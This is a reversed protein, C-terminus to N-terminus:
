ALDPRLRYFYDQQWDELESWRDKGYLDAYDDKIKQVEKEEDSLEPPEGGFLAHQFKEIANREVQYASPRTKYEEDVAERLKRLALRDIHKKDTAAEISEIFIDYFPLALDSARPIATTARGFADQDGMLAQAIDYIAASIEEAAGISLGGPTWSLINFPNYPNYKRGTVEKYAGGILLGAIIIGAMTKFAYRKERLTAGSSPKLKKGQLILRQAYSRPFVFLNMVVRALGGMEAPARQSREYMFHTNNTVERAVYRAFAEEGTVAELGEIGYDFKDLVLLQLAEKQQLPQLDELGSDAVLQDIDKTKRYTELARDVKNVRLWMSWRRNTEDTWPYRSLKNALRTIRGLGPLPKFQRMLYDHMMGLKQSVFIDSYLLRQTNLPKNRPDVMLHRDPHFAINQCLNRLWKHPDFFVAAMVQGYLRSAFRGVPGGIESYGKMENIAISLNNAVQYPSKLLYSAEDFTRAFQRIPSQLGRLSLIQKVYTNYRQVINRDQAPYEIGVRSRIHGKALTAPKMRFLYLRPNIISLPEYGSKIIGWDKDALFKSVADEGGSEYLDIAKRLDEIPADHIELDKIKRADGGYIEYANTFRIFRVLGRFEFLQREIEKALKVEEATIDPPSKPGMKHKAAIYDSVRGLAADDQSIKKFEATAQEVKNMYGLQEWRVKLHKENLWQWTEYFPRGTGEQLKQTYYRMDLLPSAGILPGGLRAVKLRGIRNDIKGIQETVKPNGVLAQKIQNRWGILEAEDLMAKILDKGQRETIFNCASEYKATRLKLDSMLRAFNEDDMQGREGLSEKLSEIKRETKPTIVRKSRVLLPRATKVKALVDGLQEETMLHLQAHETTKSFIRRLQTQPLGKYKGWAMITARLAKQKETAAVKGKVKPAAKVEKLSKLVAGVDHWSEKLAQAIDAKEEASIDKESLQTKLAKVEGELSSHIYELEKVPELGEIKVEGKPIEGTVTEFEAAAKAEVEIGVAPVRRKVKIRKLGLAMLSEQEESTLEAWNVGGIDREIGAEKMLVDREPVLARDWVERSTAYMVEIEPAVREVKVRESAAVAEKKAEEVKIGGLVDTVVKQGEETQVLNDMARLEAIDHDLGQAEFNAVDGNFADTAGPSLKEKVGNILNTYVGGVGGMGMGMLGGLLMVEQMEADLKVERGLAQRQIVNQYAEEGAESLGVTVVKGAITVTKFLASTAFKAPGPAFAAAIQAADLGALKLNRRFVENAARNAEDESIGSTIAQDYTEGAELASEMPRSLAVAGLAKLIFRGLFGIGFATGIAGGAYAGAIMMPVLSLTFPMARPFETIYYRPNLAKRWGREEVPSIPVRTAPEGFRILADGIKDKGLWKAANGMGMFADGCGANFYTVAQVFPDDPFKKLLRAFINASRTKPYPPMEAKKAVEVEIRPRAPVAEKPKVWREKKWLEYWKAEKPPEEGAIYQQWWGVEAQYRKAAELDAEAFATEAREQALRLGVLKEIDEPPTDFGILEEKLLKARIKAKQKEEAEKEKEWEGALEMARESRRERLVDEAWRFGSQIQTQIAAERERGTILESWIGATELQEIATTQQRQATLREVLAARKEREAEEREEEEERRAEQQEAMWDLGAKAKSRFRSVDRQVLDVTEFWKLAM